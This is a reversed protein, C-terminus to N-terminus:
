WRKMFALYGSSGAGASEEQCLRAPQAAVLVQQDVGVPARPEVAVADVLVQPVLQRVGNQVADELIDREPEVFSQGLEELQRRAPVADIGSVDLVQLVGAQVEVQGPQLM